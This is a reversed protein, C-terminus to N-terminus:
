SARHKLRLQSWRESVSGYARAAALVEGRELADVADAIDACSRDDVRDDDSAYAAIGGYDLELLSDPDFSGIWGGLDDLAETIEEAGDVASALAISARALREAALSATTVYVVADADRAREAPSRDRDEAAFAAFWRLPVTWSSEQIHPPRDLRRLTRLAARAEDPPVFADAVPEPLVDRFALLAVAHREALELPCVYTRGRSERVLALDPFTASRASATVAPALEAGGALLRIAAIRAEAEVAVRSTVHGGSSLLERWRQQEDRPLADLPEYARLYACPVM